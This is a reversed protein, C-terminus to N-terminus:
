SKLHIMREVARRAKVAILPDVVVEEQMHV